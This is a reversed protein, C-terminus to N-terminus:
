ELKYVERFEDTASILEYLEKVYEKAGQLLREYNEGINRLEDNEKGYVETIQALEGSVVGGHKISNNLLRLENVIPYHSLSKIKPYDNKINEWYSYRKSKTEDDLGLLSKHKLEVLRYLAIVFLEDSLKQVQDIFQQEEKLFSYMMLEDIKNKYINNDFKSLRDSVLGLEKGASEKVLERLKNIYSTDLSTFHERIMDEITWDKM